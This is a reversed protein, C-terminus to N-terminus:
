KKPIRQGARGPGAHTTEHVFKTFKSEDVVVFFFKSERNATLRPEAHFDALEV